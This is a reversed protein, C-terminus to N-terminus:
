RAILSFPAIPLALLTSSCRSTRRRAGLLLPGRGVYRAVPEAPRLLATQPFSICPRQPARACAGDESGYDQNGPTAAALDRPCFIAPPPLSRAWKEGALSPEAHEAAMCNRVFM